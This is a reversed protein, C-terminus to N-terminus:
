AAQIHPHDHENGHENEIKAGFYMVCARAFGKPREPPWEEIGQEALAETFDKHHRINRNFNAANIVGTQARVTAFPVPEIGGNIADIVYRAAAGAKGKFSRPIPLWPVVSAGPFIVPLEGAIGSRNSAIIYADVKPCKAGDCKRVAGRCLAQLIAHRHEGLEVDKIDRPPMGGCASPRGAAARSLAEYYSPPYFLTGALIINPVHAFDNTAEHAGWNLFHVDGTRAKKLLRKVDRETDTGKHFIVLWLEDPKSDITNAIGEALQDRDSGRFAGKGGPTRWLHLKLPSYDKPAPPLRVVGGRHEEWLRYTARVEERSSADLVLVPTLDPPLAEKYDLVTTGYRGHLSERRVTVVRGFLFWLRTLTERHEPREDCGAAALATARDVNHISALDPVSFLSGDTAGLLDANMSDLAAALSPYPRRLPKLLSSVDDRTIIMARGPLIAEDWVRVERPRGFYHFAEVGAFAHGDCRSEVMSHTTFLVRAQAPVGCGLKNLAADATFVAFDEDRLGADHVFDEIQKKRGVCVLVATGSHAESALMANIFHAVAQTKGVGPDLSALHVATEAQGTAMAELANAIATIAGWMDASPRHDKQEFFARLSATTAAALPGAPTTPNPISSEEIRFKVVETAAPTLCRPGNLGSITPDPTNTQM